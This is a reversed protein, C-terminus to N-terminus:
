QGGEDAEAAEEAAGEHEQAVVEGTLADVHVEEIGDRGAVKLDFSYILAGDEEELEGAQVVAGPVRALAAAKAAEVTVGARDMLDAPLEIRAAGATQGAMEGAEDAENEEGRAREAGEGCALTFTTLLALTLMARHKM